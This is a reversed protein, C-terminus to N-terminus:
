ASSYEAARNCDAVRIGWSARMEMLTDGLSRERARTRERFPRPSSRFAAGAQVRDFGIGDYRKQIKDFL